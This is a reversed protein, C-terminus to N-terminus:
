GLVIFATIIAAVWLICGAVKMPQLESWDQWIAYHEQM